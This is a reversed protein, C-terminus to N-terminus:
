ATYVHTPFLVPQTVERETHCPLNVAGGNSVDLGDETPMNTYLCIPLILLMLLLTETGSDRGDLGPSLGAM